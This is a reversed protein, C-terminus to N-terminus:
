GEVSIADATDGAGDASEAPPSNNNDPSNTPQDNNDTVTAQNTNVKEAASEENGAANNASSSDPSDSRLFWDSDQLTNEQKTLRELRKAQNSSWSILLAIILAITVFALGLYGTLRALPNNATNFPNQGSSGFLAFGEGQDDQVMILLITLLCGVALIIMLTTIIISM